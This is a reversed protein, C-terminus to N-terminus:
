KMDVEEDSFDGIVGNSRFNQYFLMVENIMEEGYFDIIADYIRQLREHIRKKEAKEKEWIKMLYRNDKDIQIQERTQMTARM